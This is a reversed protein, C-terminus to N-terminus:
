GSNATELGACSLSTRFRNCPLDHTRTAPRPKQVQAWDLARFPHVPFIDEMCGVYPIQYASFMDGKRSGDGRARQLLEAWWRDQLVLYNEVFPLVDIRLRLDV